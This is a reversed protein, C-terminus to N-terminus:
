FPYTFRVGAFTPDEPPFNNGYSFSTIVSLHFPLDGFNNLVGTYLGEPLEIVARDFVRWLLAGVVLYFTFYGLAAPTPHLLTRRITQSTRALDHEIVKRRTSNRLVMVPVLLLLLTTLIISGATLGLFLALVFGILGLVSLGICAGACLRAAFSADEDYLYTALTGSATALLVLTLSIMM